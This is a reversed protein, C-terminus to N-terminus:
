KQILVNHIDYLRQDITDIKKVLDEMTYRTTFTAHAYVILSAGVAVLYVMFKIDNKM